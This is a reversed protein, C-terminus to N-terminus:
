GVEERKGAGGEDNTRRATEGKRGGFGFDLERTANGILDGLDRADIGAATLTARLRRLLAELRRYLPRQPLRLVGSIEAITMASAYHFRIIMREELTMAELAERILGSTREALRVADAALARDDARETAALGGEADSLDVPRPRPARLPLRAEIEMVRERTLTPDISQVIPIAEEISRRDRRVIRELVVASEGLREAERSPHWRGTRKTREDILFRQVIVALFTTLSSRGEFLRLVAYDNEMLALKTASAFDEADAGFMGARHCVAAVVGDILALNSEFLRAVDM